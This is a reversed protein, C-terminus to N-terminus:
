LPGALIFILAATKAVPTAMPASHSTAGNRGARAADYSAYDQDVPYDPRMRGYDGRLGHSSAGHSAPEEASM